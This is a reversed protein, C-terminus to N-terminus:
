NLLTLIEPSFSSPHPNSSSPDQSISASPSFTPHVPPIKPASHMFNGDVLSLYSSKLNASDISKTLSVSAENKLSIQFHQFLKTLFGSYPLCKKSQHICSRMNRMM